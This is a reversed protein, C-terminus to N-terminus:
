IMGKVILGVVALANDENLAKAEIFGEESKFDSKFVRFKKIEGDLEKNKFVCKSIYLPVFESELVSFCNEKCAKQKLNKGIFEALSKHIVRNESPIFYYDKYNDFYYNLSTDAIPLTLEVQNEMLALEYKKDSTSDVLVGDSLHKEVPFMSRYRLNISLYTDGREISEVEFNDGFEKLSDSLVLDRYSLIEYVSLMGEMDCYNHLLLLRKLEDRKPDDAQLRLFEKYVEILRGGDYEDERDIGLFCELNKQKLSDLGLFKKLPRILKLMDHSRETFLVECKDPVPISHIYAIERVFPIDFTQGNFHFLEEFDEILKFFEKILLVEEKQVEAFWQIIKFESDSEKFAVGIMYISATKASFGTTEIDFFISKEPLTKLYDSDVKISKVKTEM